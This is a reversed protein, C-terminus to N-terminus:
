VNWKARPGPIPPTPSAITSVMHRASAISSIPPVRGARQRITCPIGTDTLGTPLKAPVIALLHRLCQATGGQSAEAHWAASVFTGVRDIAVFWPLKGEETRGEAIDLPGSGM